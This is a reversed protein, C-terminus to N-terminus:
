VHLPQYGYYGAAYAVCNLSLRSTHTHACQPSFCTVALFWGPVSFSPTSGARARVWARMGVRGAAAAAELMAPTVLLSSLHVTQLVRGLKACIDVADAPSDRTTLM